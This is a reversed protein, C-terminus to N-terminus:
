FNTYKVLVRVSSAMERDASCQERQTSSLSLQYCILSEAFSGCFIFYRIYQLTKANLGCAFMCLTSYLLIYGFVCGYVSVNQVFDAIKNKPFTPISFTPM